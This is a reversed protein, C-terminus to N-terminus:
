SDNSLNVFPVSSAILIKTSGVLYFIVPLQNNDTKSQKYKEIKEYTEKLMIEYKSSEKPIFYKSDKIGDPLYQQNVQYM